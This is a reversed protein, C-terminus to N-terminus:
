KQVAVNVGVFARLPFGTEVGQPSVASVRTTILEAMAVLTEGEVIVNPWDAVSVAVTM